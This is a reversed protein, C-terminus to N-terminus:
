RSISPDAPAPSVRPAAPSSPPCLRQLVRLTEPSRDPVCKLGLAPRVLGAVPKTVLGESNVTGAPLSSAAVLGAGNYTLGFSERTGALNVLFEFDKCNPNSALCSFIAAPIACRYAMRETFLLVAGGDVVALTAANLRVVGSPLPSLANVCAFM